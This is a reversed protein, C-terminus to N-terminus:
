RTCAPPARAHRPLAQGGDGQRLLTGVVVLAFAECHPCRLHWKPEDAVAAAVIIPMALLTAIKLRRMKAAPHMWGFYRV